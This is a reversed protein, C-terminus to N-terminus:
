FPLSKIAMIFYLFLVFVIMNCMFTSRQRASICVSVEYKASFNLFIGYLNKLIKYMYLFKWPAFLQLKSLVMLFQGWPSLKGKCERWFNELSSWYRIEDSVIPQDYFLFRITIVFHILAPKREPGCFQFLSLSLVKFLFQVYAAVKM